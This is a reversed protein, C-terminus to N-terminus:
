YMDANQAYISLSRLLLQNVKLTLIDLALAVDYLMDACFSM